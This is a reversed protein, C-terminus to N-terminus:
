SDWVGELPDATMYITKYIKYWDGLSAFLFNCFFLWVKCTPFNYLIEYARNNTQM